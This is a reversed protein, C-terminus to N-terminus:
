FVAFFSDFFRLSLNALAFRSVTHGTLSLAAMDACPGDRNEHERGSM